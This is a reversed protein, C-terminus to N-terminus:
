AESGHEEIGSPCSVVIHRRCLPHSSLHSGVNTFPAANPLKPEICVEPLAPCVLREVRM